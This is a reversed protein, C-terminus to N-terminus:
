AVVTHAAVMSRKTVISRKADRRGYGTNFVLFTDTLYNMTFDREPYKIKFYMEAVKLFGVKTADQLLFFVINWAWVFGVVKWPIPKMEPGNDSSGTSFNLYWYASLITAAFTAIVFAVNLVMGPRRTWFFSSTRASYITMFDAVSVQLYITTLVEGYSFSDLGFANLIRNPNNDYMNSLSLGLLALSSLLVVAGLVMALLFIFPLDWKEPKKSVTVQDYAISILTGDNLITIIVLALVPLSFVNPIDDCDSHGQCAFTSPDIGTMAIFFFILLQITCAVRYICFNKMRQFIKRSRFIAEIIVSLGPSTLVIDAAAAAADTAGEVAIGVDAKKLAPADNVGDGTMGVRHHKDQLMKVIAFKHEPFVEAFGDCTEVIQDLFQRQTESAVESLIESNYIKDGMKLLRATEKAIALQDGTIMKVSVEMELAKKITEATDDRPPDYLPILGEMVWKGESNTRGVGITRYGRSALENVMNSVEEEISPNEAMGLIVQPAGKTVKFTEGTQKIRITAETRKIVPDFPVFDEEEYIDFKIGHAKIATHTICKDIADQGADERKAALAASTIIQEISVGGLVRPQQVTLENKTLTGTKDSCLIDVGALEEIANLRSVIAKKQALRHAGVAMTTACVVQIAIPISAVLLVVCVGITQLVGNGKALVVILIILVLITSAIMLMMTVHFLIKQFNSQQNVEGVLKSTKGFFTNAGTAIVIAELDGRKVVGGQYVEEGEYRTVAMSEGTLAAQDVELFGPGLKSDAPVIDGLKITIRDGIVLDAAAVGKWENDRKVMAKSGVQKKLAEIANGANKEEHWGIFGNAFQLIFLVAVDIASERAAEVIIAVWIMCPMPGWYHSLFVLWPNRKKEPLKNPGDRDYRRKAEASTLGTSPTNLEALREASLQTKAEKKEGHDQISHYDAM